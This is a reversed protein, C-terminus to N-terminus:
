LRMYMHVCYMYGSACTCKCMCVYEHGYTGYVHLFICHIQPPLTEMFVYLNHKWINLHQCVRRMSNTRYDSKLM